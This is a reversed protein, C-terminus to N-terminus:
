SGRNRKKRAKLRESATARRASPADYQPSGVTIWARSGPGQYDNWPFSKRRSAERSLFNVLNFFWDGLVGKEGPVLAVGPAPNLLGRDLVVVRDVCPVPLAAEACADRVRKMEKAQWDTASLNSKYAFISTLIRPLKPDTVSGKSGNTVAYPADWPRLAHLAKIGAFSKALEAASLLTKVEVTALLAEAPLLVNRGQTLPATLSQDYILIDTQGSQTGQTDVVEGRAVAYRSPLRQTLFHALADERQDGIDGRQMYVQSEEFSNWLSNEAATLTHRFQASGTRVTGM